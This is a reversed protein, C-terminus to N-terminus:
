AVPLPAAAFRRDAIGVEGWVSSDCEGAAKTSMELGRM